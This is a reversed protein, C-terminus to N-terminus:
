GKSGGVAQGAVYALGLIILMTNMQKVLGETVSTGLGGIGEAVDTLPNGVVDAVGGVAAGAVSATQQGVAGVAGRLMKPVGGGPLVDTEPADTGMWGDADPQPAPKPKVSSGGTERTLQRGEAQAEQPQDSRTGEPYDSVVLTDDPDAPPEVSGSKREKIRNEREDPTAVDLQGSPPVREEPPAGGYLSSFNAGTFSEVIPLPNPLSM